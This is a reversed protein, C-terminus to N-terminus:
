AENSELLISPSTSVYRWNEPCATSFVNVEAVTIFGCADEDIAEMISQVRTVSIHELTWDDEKSLQHATVTSAANTKTRKLHDLKEGFYDRTALVFHRNEM